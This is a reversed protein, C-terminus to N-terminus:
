VLNYNFYIIKNNDAYKNVNTIKYKLSTTTDYQVYKCPTTNPNKPFCESRDIFYKIIIIYVFAYGTLAMQFTAARYM